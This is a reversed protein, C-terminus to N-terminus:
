QMKSGLNHRTIHLLQGKNSCAWAHLHSKLVLLLDACLGASLVVCHNTYSGCKKVCHIETNQGCLTDTHETHNECYVAVTEGFLMLRNPKTTSVYHTEHSTRVTDTNRVTRVIFLSQKRLCCYSTTRQLPSTFHKKHPVSQIHIHNECYVAVAEGFLMLRNPKTASVYHTEQSNRVTDTHETHNECYVAVTEGFLMLRNPEPASVYHTEQSIRVTDTNRITRAIFLSQKGLCSGNRTPSRLPSTIHKRHPVSPIQTNRM